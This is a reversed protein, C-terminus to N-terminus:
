FMIISILFRLSTRSHIMLRIVHKSPFVLLASPGFIIPWYCTKGSRIIVDTRYRSKERLFFKIGRSCIDIKRPRKIPSVSEDWERLITRAGVRAPSFFQRFYLCLKSRGAPNQESPSQGQLILSLRTGSVNKTQDKVPQWYKKETLSMRFHDLAPDGGEKSTIALMMNLSIDTNLTRNM